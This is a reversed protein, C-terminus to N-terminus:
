RRHRRHRRGAKHGRGRRHRRGSKRRARAHRRCGMQSDQAQTAADDGEEAQADLPVLAFMLGTLVVLILRKLTFM